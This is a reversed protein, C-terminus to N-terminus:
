LSVFPLPLEKESVIVIQYHPPLFWAIAELIGQHESPVPQGLSELSFALEFHTGDLTFMLVKPDLVGQQLLFERLIKRAYIPLYSESPEGSQKIDKLQFEFVGEAQQATQGFFFGTEKFYWLMGYTFVFDPYEKQPNVVLGIGKDHLWHLVRQFPETSDAESKTLLYPWGDPGTQPESSFLDLNGQTLAQFFRNEWQSDRQSEPVSLIEVLGSEVSM